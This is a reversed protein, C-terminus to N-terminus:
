IFPLSLDWIGATDVPFVDLLTDVCNLTTDSLIEELSELNDLLDAPSESGIRGATDSVFLIDTAVWPRM